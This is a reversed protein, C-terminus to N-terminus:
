IGKGEFRVGTVLPALILLRISDGRASEPAEGSIWRAAYFVALTSVLTQLVPEMGTLILMPLPVLVIIGILALFKVLPTAKYWSLVHHAAAVVLVALILNLVLPALQNVGGLYYILSLLLTWLPPSSCSTFGYRTIGWVGYQAFNRAMAMGIYADDLAYILFGHNQSLSISIALWTVLLLILVSLYLPWNQFPSKQL